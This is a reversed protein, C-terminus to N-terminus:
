TRFRYRREPLPSGEGYMATHTLRREEETKRPPSSRITSTRMRALRPRYSQIWGQGVAVSYIIWIGVGVGALMAITIGWERVEAAM